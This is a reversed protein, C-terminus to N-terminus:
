LDKSARRIITKLVELVAKHAECYQIYHDRSPCYNPISIKRKKIESLLIKVIKENLEINKEFDELQRMNKFRFLLCPNLTYGSNLMIKEIYKKETLIIRMWKNQHM